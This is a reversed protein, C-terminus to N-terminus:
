PIGCKRHCYNASKGTPGYDSNMNAVAIRHSSKEYLCNELALLKGLLVRLMSNPRIREITRDMADRDVIEAPRQRNTMTALHGKEVLLCQTHEMANTVDM